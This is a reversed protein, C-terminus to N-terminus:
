RVRAFKQFRDPAVVEAVYLDGHSDVCVSHPMDAFQGPATGQEGWRALLHGDLDWVSIGAYAEAVYVHDKRDVYMDNPWSLGTWQTLFTGHADFVQIRDNARDAVLVRGRSDVWLGHPTDFQGPGSGKEGWSRLLRGDPAFRHVREQGYGDSVWIEGAPSLVAKTPKNFPAGPAGAQGPTGLTQLLEGQTTFRYVAHNLTDVCVVEDQPSIWISHLGGVVTFVQEGWTDLLRGARDFVLVCPEPQRSAVYVRDQSDVAVSIAQGFQQCGDASRGWGAVVQYQYAKANVNM